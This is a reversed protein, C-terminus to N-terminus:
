QPLSIMFVTGKGPESHVAATGGHLETIKKVLPLGLGSGGLSRERSKDAKYFREFIHPLDEESIGIGTDSIKVTSGEASVCIKGGEPTFKIANVLLNVWVQSFLDEDAEIEIKPLYAEATLNKASWQPELTLMIDSIQRDLRYAKKAITSSDLSSLKLLNGSLSSLRRSEAEIIGAYRLREDATLDEKKLLAAFGSVSTLPSQIEHSVNSIFDQRMNEMNGLNKAMTNVADALENHVIDDAPVFVSFDGQAIREMADLIRSHQLRDHNERSEKGFAHALFGFVALVLLGTWFSFVTKRLGSLETFSLIGHGAATSATTLAIFGAASLFIKLRRQERM